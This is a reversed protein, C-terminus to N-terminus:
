PTQEDKGARRHSVKLAAMFQDFQEPMEPRGLTKMLEDLERWQDAM